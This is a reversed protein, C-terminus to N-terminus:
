SRGECYSKWITNIREHLDMPDFPKAIVDAAGLDMLRAKDGPRLNATMFVVATNASNPDRRLAALTAPGDIDPMNVDLLILQPDFAPAKEIAEKGSACAEVAFGGVDKLSMMVIERLDPNDDVCLVRRLKSSTFERPRQAPM